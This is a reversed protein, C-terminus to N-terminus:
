NTGEFIDVHDERFFTIVIGAIILMSGVTLVAGWVWGQANLRDLVLCLTLVKFVPIGCPLNKPNVVKKKKM